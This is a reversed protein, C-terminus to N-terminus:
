LTLRTAHAYEKKGTINLRNINQHAIDANACVYIIDLRKVTDWLNDVAKAIIGRAVLTKGLGVEDAILFWDVRDSDEYLRKYVYEVTKRQFDKLGSLIHKVNPRLSIDNM